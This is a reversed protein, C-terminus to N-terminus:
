EQKHDDYTEPKKARVYGFLGFLNRLFYYGMILLVVSPIFLPFTTTWNGRQVLVMKQPNNPNFWCPYNQGVAFQHMIAEQSARDTTFSRDLGNGSVWRSYTKGNAPYTVYFDARYSHLVRGGITVQEKVITCTTTSYNEKVYKDPRVNTYYVFEIYLICLVIIVLQGILLLVNRATMAFKDDM